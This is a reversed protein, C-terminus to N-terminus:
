PYRLYLFNYLDLSLFDLYKNYKVMIQFIIKSASFLSIYFRNGDGMHSLYRRGSLFCKM